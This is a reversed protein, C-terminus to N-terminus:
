NVLSSPLLDVAHRVDDDVVRPEESWVPEPRAVFVVDESEPKNVDECAYDFFKDQSRQQYKAINCANTQKLVPKPVPLAQLKKVTFSNGTSFTPVRVDYSSVNEAAKANQIRSVAVHKRNSSVPYTSFVSFPRNATATTRSTICDCLNLSQILRPMSKTNGPSATLNSRQGKSKVYGKADNTITRQGEITTKDRSSSVRYSVGFTTNPRTGAVRPSAEPLESKSIRLGSDMHRKDAVIAEIRQRAVQLILDNDASDHRPSLQNAQRCKMSLCDEYSMRTEHDGSVSQFESQPLLIRTLSQGDEDTANNATRPSSSSRSYVRAATSTATRARTEVSCKESLGVVNTTVAVDGKPSHEQHEVLAYPHHKSTVKVTMPKDPLELAFTQHIVATIKDAQSRALNQYVEERRNLLKDKMWTSVKKASETKRAEAAGKQQEEVQRRYREKRRKVARKKQLLRNKKRSWYKIEPKDTELQYDNNARHNSTGTPAKGPRRPTRTRHRKSTASSVANATTPLPKDLNVHDDQIEGAAADDIKLEVTVHTKTITKKCQRRAKCKTSTKKLNRTGPKDLTEQPKNASTSKSTQKTCVLLDTDGDNVHAYADGGSITKDVKVSYLTKLRSDRHHRAVTKGTMRSRHRRHCRRIVDNPSDTVDASVAVSEAAEEIVDDLSPPQTAARADVASRMRSSTPRHSWVEGSTM